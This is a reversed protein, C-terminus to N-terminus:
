CPTDCGEGKGGGELKDALDRKKVEGMNAFKEGTRGNEPTKILYAHQLEKRFTRIQIFKRFHTLV